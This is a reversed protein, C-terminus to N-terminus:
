SLQSGQPTVGGRLYAALSPPSCSFHSSVQHGYVCTHCNTLLTAIRYTLAVGAADGYLKTNSKHDIHRWLCVNKGIAHEVSTRAKNLSTNLSAIAPAPNLSRVAGSIVQTPIYISDGYATYRVPGASFPLCRM